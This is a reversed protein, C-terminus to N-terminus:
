LGSNTESQAARAIAVKAHVLIADGPATEILAVSVEEIADGFDVTAMGGPLLALVRGM